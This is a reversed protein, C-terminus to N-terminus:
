SDESKPFSRNFDPRLIFWTVLGFGLLAFGVPEFLPQGDAQAPAIVFPYLGALGILVVLGALILNVKPTLVRSPLMFTVGLMLIPMAWWILHFLQSLSGGAANVLYVQSGVQVLAVTTMCIGIFVRM